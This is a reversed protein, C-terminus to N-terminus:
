RRMLIEKSPPQIKKNDGQIYNEGQYKWIIKESPPQVRGANTSIPEGHYRNLLQESPAKIANGDQPTPKENQFEPLMNGPPPTITKKSNQATGSQANLIEASPPDIDNEAQLSGDDPTLKVDGDANQSRFKGQKDTAVTDVVFIKVKKEHNDRMLAFNSIGASSLIRKLGEEFNVKGTHLTVPMKKWQPSIGITYGTMYGLQDFIEQLPMNDTKLSFDSGDPQFPNSWALGASYMISIFLWLGALLSKFGISRGPQKAIHFIM